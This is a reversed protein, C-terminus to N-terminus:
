RFVTCYCWGVVNKIKKFRKLEKKLLFLCCVSLSCLDLLISFQSFSLSRIVTSEFFFLSSPKFFFFIGDDQYGVFMKTNVMTERIRQLHRPLLMTLMTLMCSMFHNWQFKDDWCKLMVHINRSSSIKIAFAKWSQCILCMFPLPPFFMKYEM